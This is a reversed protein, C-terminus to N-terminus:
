LLSDIASICILLSEFFWNPTLLEIFQKDATSCPVSWSKLHLQNTLRRWCDTWLIITSKDTNWFTKVMFAKLAWVQCFNLEEAMTPTFTFTTFKVKSVQIASPSIFTTSIGATNTYTSSRSWTKKTSSKWLKNSTPSSKISSVLLVSSKVTTKKLLFM